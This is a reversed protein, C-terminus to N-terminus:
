CSTRRSEQKELADRVGSLGRARKERGGRGSLYSVNEFPCVCTVVLPRGLKMGTRALTATGSRSVTSAHYACDIGDILRFFFPEVAFPTFFAVLVHLVSVVVSPAYM